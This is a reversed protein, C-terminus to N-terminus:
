HIRWSILRTLFFNVDVPYFPVEEGDVVMELDSDDSSSDEEEGKDVGSSYVEDDESMDNGQAARPGPARKRKRKTPETEAAGEDLAAFFAKAKDRKPRSSGASNFMLCLLYKKGFHFCSMGTASVSAGGLLSASLTISSLTGLGHDGVTDSWKMKRLIFSKRTSAHVTDIFNSPLLGNRWLYIGISILPTDRCVGAYFLGWHAEISESPV